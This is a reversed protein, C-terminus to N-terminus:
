SIQIFLNFHRLLPSVVTPRLLPSTVHLRHSAGVAGPARGLVFGDLFEDDTVDDLCCRHSLDIFLHISQYIYGVGRIRSDVVWLRDCM